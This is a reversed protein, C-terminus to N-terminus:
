VACALWKTCVRVRLVATTKSVGMFEYSRPAGM